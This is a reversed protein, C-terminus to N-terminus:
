IFRNGDGNSGSCSYRSTDTNAQVKV